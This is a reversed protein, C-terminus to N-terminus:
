RVGPAPAGKELVRLLPTFGLSRALGLSGELRTPIAARLVEAGRRSLGSLVGQLLLRGLGRRRAEPLVFAEGVDGVRQARWIPPWVSFLGTAYGLLTEPDQSAAGVLTERADQEAWVSITTALRDRVDVALRLRPELHATEGLFKWRLDALRALDARVLPRVVFAALDGGGPTVENPTGGM